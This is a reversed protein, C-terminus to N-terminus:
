HHAGVSAESIREGWSRDYFRIGIARIDTWIAEDRDLMQVMDIVDGGRYTDRIVGSSERMVQYLDGTGVLTILLTSQEPHSPKRCRVLYAAAVNPTRAYLTTLASITDAPADTAVEIIIPKAKDLVEKETHGVTGTALLQEVEDPYFHRGFPCNVNLLLIRQPFMEFLERAHMIVAAKKGPAGHRAMALSSFFPVVWTGDECEFEVIALDSDAPVISQRTPRQTTIVYVDSELLLRYFEPRRGPETTAIRLTRELANESSESSHPQAM